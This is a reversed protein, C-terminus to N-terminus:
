NRDKTSVVVIKGTGDANYSLTAVDTLFRTSAIEGPGVDGISVKRSWFGVFFNLVHQWDGTIEVKTVIGTNKDYEPIRKRHITYKLFTEKEKGQRLKPAYTQTLPSFTGSSYNNSMMYMRMKSQLFGQIQTDQFGYEVNCM